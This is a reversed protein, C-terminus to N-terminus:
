GGSLLCRAFVASHRSTGLPSRLLHLLFPLQEIVDDALALVTAPVTLGLQKAAKLNIVLELKTTQVVPLDAPNADSLIRASYLGLQTAVESRSPGYSVLAGADVYERVPYIAPIAHRTALAVIRAVRSALFTDPAVFVGDVQDRALSRRCAEM